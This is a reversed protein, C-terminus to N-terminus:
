ELQEGDLCKEKKMFLEFIGIMQNFINLVDILHCLPMLIEEVHIYLILIMLSYLM